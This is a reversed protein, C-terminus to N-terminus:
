LKQNVYQGFNQNIKMSTPSSVVNKPFPLTLKPRIPCVPLFPDGRMLLVVKEPFNRGMCFRKM